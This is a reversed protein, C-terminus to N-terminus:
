CVDGFCGLLQGRSIHRPLGGVTICALQLEQVSPCLGLAALEGKLQRATISQCLILRLHLAGHQRRVAAGLAATAGCTSNAPSDSSLQLTLRNACNLVLARLSSCTGALSRRDSVPLQKVIQALLEPPLALLPNDESTESRVRPAAAKGRPMGGLVWDPDLFVIELLLTSATNAHLYSKQQQSSLDCQIDDFLM